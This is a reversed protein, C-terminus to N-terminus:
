KEKVYNNQSKVYNPYIELSFLKMPNKLFMQLNQIYNVTFSKKIERLIENQEFSLVQEDCILLKKIM